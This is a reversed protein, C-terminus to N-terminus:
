FKSRPWTRAGHMVALIEIVDGAVRYPVVYPTRSVVLERTGALRGARGLHPHLKLSEIAGRIRAIVRNAAAQDSESIYWRVHDLDRLSRRTFRLRM